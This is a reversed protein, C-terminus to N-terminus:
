QGRVNKRNPDIPQDYIEGADCAKLGVRELNDIRRKREAMQETLRRRGKASLSEGRLRKRISPRDIIDILKMDSVRYVLACAGHM